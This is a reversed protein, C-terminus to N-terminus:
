KDPDLDKMEQSGKRLLIDVCDVHHTPVWHEIEPRGSKLHPGGPSVELSLDGSLLLFADTPQSMPFMRDALSPHTHMHRCM